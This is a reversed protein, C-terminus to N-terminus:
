SSSLSRLSCSTGKEQANLVCGSAHGSPRKLNLIETDYPFGGGSDSDDAAAAKNHWTSPHMYWLNQPRRRGKPKPRCREHRAKREPPFEADGALFSAHVKRAIHPEAARVRDTPLIIHGSHDGM